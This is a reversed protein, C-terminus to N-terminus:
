EVTIAGDATAENFDGYFRYRGPTLPRFRLTIESNGAVVKEVRLTKSEFEEPTPDLNRVVIVIPTNAPAKLESPQFRHNKITTHLTVEQALSPTATMLTFVACMSAFKLLAGAPMNKM